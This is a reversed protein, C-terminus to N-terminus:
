SCKINRELGFFVETLQPLHQVENFQAEAFTPRILCSTERGEDNRIELFRQSAIGPPLLSPAVLFAYWIRAWGGDYQRTGVKTTQFVGM